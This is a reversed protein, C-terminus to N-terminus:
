RPAVAPATELGLTEPAHLRALVRGASPPVSRRTLLSVVVMVAFATPVSWAAPQALLAGGWGSSPGGVITALVATAALGGGTVLGAIAGATTLGRWWIGLVLLPCFTSAALAFALGVTDALSTRLTLFSLLFPVVVAVVAGV